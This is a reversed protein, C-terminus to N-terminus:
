RKCLPTQIQPLLRILRLMRQITASCDVLCLDKLVKFQAISIYSGILPRVELVATEQKTALYLCAIGKSNARGDSAKEALPKMRAPSHAAQVEDPEEDNEEERWDHGLQARQLRLHVGEEVVGELPFESMAKVSMSIASCMFTM